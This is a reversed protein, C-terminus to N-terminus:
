GAALPAFPNRLKPARAKLDAAADAVLRTKATPDTSLQGQVQQRATDLLRDDVSEAIMEMEEDSLERGFRQTQGDFAKQYEPQLNQRALGTIAADFASARWGDLIQQANGQSAASALPAAADAARTAIRGPM